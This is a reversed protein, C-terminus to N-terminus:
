ADCPYGKFAEQTARTTFSGGALTPSTLSAPEIRPDPLDRSFSVAVRELIRAQLIGHVASDPPSCIMPDCLSLCSQLSKARLDSPFLIYKQMLTQLNPLITFNNFNPKRM